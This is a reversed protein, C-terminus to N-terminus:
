CMPCPRLRSAGLHYCGPPSWILPGGCPVPLEDPQSTQGDSIPHRRICAVVNSRSVDNWCRINAFNVWAQGSRYSQIEFRPPKMVWSNVSLFLSAIVGVHLTDGELEVITPQAIPQVPSDLM